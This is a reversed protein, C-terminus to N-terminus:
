AALLDVVANWQNGAQRLDPQMVITHLPCNDTQCGGVWFDRKDTTFVPLLYCLPCRKLNDM